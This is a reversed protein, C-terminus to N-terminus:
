GIKVLAKKIKAIEEDPFLKEILGSLNKDGDSQKYARTNKLLPVIKCTFMQTFAEGEDGGCEMIVSTFKEIQLINKNGIDFKENAGVASVLGDVKKWIKEPLFFEERATTILDNFEAVAVNKVEVSACKDAGSIALDVFTSCNIIEKPFTANVDEPVVFYTINGPLKITLEDNVTLHKEETPHNAYDVFEKFYALINDPVVKTLIAACMKARSKEAAHVANAFESLVYRDGGEKWMIDNTGGWDSSTEVLASSGFYAGLAELFSPLVEANACRLVVIKSAAVAAMISRVSTMEINVGYSLAFERFNTCVESLSIHETFTVEEDESEDFSTDFTREVTLEPKRNASADEADDSVDTETDAVPIEYTVKAIEQFEEIKGVMDTLIENENLYLQKKRNKTILIIYILLIIDFIGAVAGLVIYLLPTKDAIIPTFAFVAILANYYVGLMIAIFLKVGFSLKKSAKEREARERDGTFKIDTGHSTEVLENEFTDKYVYGRLTVTGSLKDSDYNDSIYIEYDGGEIVYCQKSDSYAKFTNEDFHIEVNVSDGKKVYQKVFGRLTKNRFFNTAEGNRIYMQVSFYGDREGKNEVTFSVGGTNVRLNRYEFQTYTLGYGFPYIVDGNARVAEETLKGSPSILGSIIDLVASVGEQGCNYTRLVAKCKDAFSLDINRDCAVVAIIGYGKSYLTDLLELQEPPLATAGRGACLYLLTCDSKGALEAASGLLDVRGREGKKYGAAFGTTTIGEYENIVEFPLMEVTPYGGFLEKQYSIDNAFAGEVAIKTHLTLPLIGDNKLLVVGERAAKLALADHSIEDFKATRDGSLGTMEPINEGGEKMEVLLSILRDCARDIIEEDFIELSRVRRDFEGLNINGDRFGKYAIRYADTREILINILEATFDETIFVLSCGESLMRLCEQVSSANGYFLGGFKFKKRITQIDAPKSVLVSTPKVESLLTDSVFKKDYTHDSDETYTKEFNAAKGSRSLGLMRALVFKATVFNDNSVDDLTYDDTSNFYGYPHVRKAEEGIATYVEGILGTNWTSALAKDSPFRTAFAAPCDDYPQGKLKFVPFEYGGAPSSEHPTLSTVFKVKQELTMKVILRENALM